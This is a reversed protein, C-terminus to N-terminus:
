DCASVYITAHPCMYYNSSVYKAHPCVRAAEQRMGQAEGAGLRMRVRVYYYSSVYITTQPCVNECASVHACSRSANRSSRWCRTTHPCVYLPMLVCIYYQLRMRVCARLKKVCEKLKPLVKTSRISVYASTHQRISVHASTHKPLVETSRISVFASTHQRISVYASTHQRISQSCRSRTRPATCGFSTTFSTTFITTFSTTFSTTLVKLTDPSAHLESDVLRTYETYIDKNDPHQMVKEFVGFPVVACRGTQMREGLM